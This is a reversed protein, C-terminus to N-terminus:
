GLQCHRQKGHILCTAYCFFHVPEQLRILEQVGSVADISCEDFTLHAQSLSYQLPQPRRTAKQEQPSAAMPIIRLMKEIALAVIPSLGSV